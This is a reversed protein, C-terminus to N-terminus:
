QSPTNDLFHNALEVAADAITQQPMKTCYEDVLKFLIETNKSALIDTGTNWATSSLFGLMWNGASFYENSSRLQAWETCSVNGAGMMRVASTAPMSVVSFLLGTLLAITTRGPNMLLEAQKIAFLPWTVM